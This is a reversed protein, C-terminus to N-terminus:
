PEGSPLTSKRAARAAMRAANASASWRRISSAPPRRDRRGSARGLADGVSTSGTAGSTAASTDSTRRRPRAVPIRQMLPYVPHRSFSLPARAFVHCLDAPLAARDGARPPRPAELSRAADPPLLPLPMALEGPCRRARRRNMPHDGPEYPSGDSWAAFETGGRTERTKPQNVDVILVAQPRHRPPISPTPAPRHGVPGVV